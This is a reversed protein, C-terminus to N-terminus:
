DKDPIGHPNRRNDTKMVTCSVVRFKSSKQALTSKHYGNRRNQHKTCRLDGSTRQRSNKDTIIFRQKLQRQMSEGNIREREEKGTKGHITGSKKCRQVVARRRSQNGKQPRKYKLNDSNQQEGKEPAHVSDPQGNDRRFRHSNRNRHSEQREFSFFVAILVFCGDAM